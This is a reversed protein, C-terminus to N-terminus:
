VGMLRRARLLNKDPEEYRKGMVPAAKEFFSLFSQTAERLSTREDETQVIKSEILSKLEPIVESLRQVFMLLENVPLEQLRELVPALDTAPTVEKSDVALLLTNVANDVAQTVPTLDVDKQEPIKIATVADSVAQKIRRESGLIEPAMDRPKQPKELKSLEDKVIARVKKYDVDAGGGGLGQAHSWQQQVHYTMTEIGYNANKTTYGSDTYVTTTIDIFFGNGGADAGVNYNGTFRQGGADTLNVTELTAGTASNRVVAQVYNTDTDAPDNLQRVIRLPSQPNINM